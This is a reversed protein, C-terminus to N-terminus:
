ESIPQKKKKREKVTNGKGLTSRVPETPYDRLTAWRVRSRPGNNWPGCGGGTLRVARQARRYSLVTGRANERGVLFFVSPVPTVTKSDGCTSCYTTVHCLPRPFIM